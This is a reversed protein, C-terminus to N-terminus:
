SITITVIHNASVKMTAPLIQGDSYNNEQIYRGIEISRITHTANFTKVKAMFKNDGSVLYVSIPKPWDKPYKVGFTNGVVKLELQIQSANESIVPAKKRTSKAKRTAINTTKPETETGNTAMVVQAEKFLKALEENLYKVLVIRPNNDTKDDKEKRGKGFLFQELNGAFFVDSIVKSQDHMVEIYDMYANVRRNKSQPLLVSSALTNHPSGKKLFANVDFIDLVKDVKGQSLLIAAHIQWGWKDYILPSVKSNNLTENMFFLLKTFYSIDVGEIKNDGKPCMSVFAERIEGKKLLQKIDKLKKIVSKKNMSMAKVLHGFSTGDSGLGGWLMAAVYGEYLNKKFRNRVKDRTLEEKWLRQVIKQYEPGGINFLIKDDKLNKYIDRLWVPNSNESTSLIVDKQSKIYDTYKNM